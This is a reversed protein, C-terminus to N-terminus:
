NNHKARNKLLVTPSIVLLCLALLEVGLSLAELFEISRDPIDFASYSWMGAVVGFASYTFIRGWSGVGLNKLFPGGVYAVIGAAPLAAVSNVITSEVIFGILSNM